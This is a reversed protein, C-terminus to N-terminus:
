VLGVLLPREARARPQALAAERHHAGLAAPLLHKALVGSVLLGVAREHAAACRAAVPWGGRALEAQQAVLERPEARLGGLLRQRELALESAARRDAGSPEEVSGDFPALSLEGRREASKLTGGGGIAARQEDRARETDALRAEDLGHEGLRLLEAEVRQAAGGVLLLAARRVRREHLREVREGRPARLQGAREGVACLGCERSEQWRHAARRPRRLLGHVAM